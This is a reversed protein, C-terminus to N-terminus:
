REHRRNMREAIVPNSCPFEQETLHKQPRIQPRAGKERVPDYACALAFVGPVAGVIEGAVRTSM